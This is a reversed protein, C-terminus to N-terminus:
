PFGHSYSIAGDFMLDRKKVNAVNWRSIDCNFSKAGYFMATMDTVNAVNWGSIDENFDDVAILSKRNIIFLGSMNTIKSTDWNKIDGYRKLALKRDYRWLYVANRINLDTLQKM